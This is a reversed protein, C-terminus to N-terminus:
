SCSFNDYDKLEDKLEAWTYNSDETWNGSNTVGDETYSYTGDSCARLSYTSTVGEYTYTSYFSCCEVKVEDEGCSTVGAVLAIAGVVKAAIKFIKM